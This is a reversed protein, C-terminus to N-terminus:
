ANYGCRGTHVTSSSVEMKVNVKTTRGAAVLIEKTINEKYGSYNAKMDYRGPALPKIIYEGNEDTVAGGKVIGGSTIQVIAGFVAENKDDIVTGSIEGSTGQAAINAVFVIMATLMTLLRKM